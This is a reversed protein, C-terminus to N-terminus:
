PLRALRQTLLAYFADADIDHLFDVNPVRDTVRWWDVVSMGYTLEGKLEIGVHVKRGTFIDPRLLFAIACPDHLPAAEWGYKQMDFVESFSLMEAAAVAARNGLARLADLRAKTSLCRHTVDMPVMTIPLGSRLVLDAAEPDVYENFAAAPTINGGELHTGAIMVIRGIRAAIDPAKVLAMAINTLPGLTVLSLEGPTAARFSEILFDVGHKDRVPMTPVPLSPGDLGTPGHVHEATVLDRRMPRAAGAHLPVDTRGALELVQRANYTTRDLPVNGAVTVVGEVSLEPSALALLLAVADDQGPDTDIIIKQPLM